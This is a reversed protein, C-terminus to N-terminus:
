FRHGQTVRFPGAATMIYGLKLILELICMCLFVTVMLCNVDFCIIHFRFIALACLEDCMCQVSVRQDRERLVNVPMHWTHSYWSWGDYYMMLLTGLSKVFLMRYYQLWLHRCACFKQSVDSVDIIIFALLISTTTYMIYKGTYQAPTVCYTEGM